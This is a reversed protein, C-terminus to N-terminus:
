GEARSLLSYCYLVVGSALVVRRMSRTADYSLRLAVALAEVAVECAHVGCAHVECAHVDCWRVDCAHVDCWRVACAHVDCAHVDGVGTVM